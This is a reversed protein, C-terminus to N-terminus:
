HKFSPLQNNISLTFKHLGATNSRKFPNNSGFPIKSNPSFPIPESPCIVVIVGCSLKLSKKAISGFCPLIELYVNCCYIQLIFELHM